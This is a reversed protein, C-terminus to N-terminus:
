FVKLTSALELAIADGTARVGLDGWSGRQSVWRVLAPADSEITAVVAGEGVGIVRAATGTVVIEVTGDFAAVVAANQQPLAAEIWDLTPELRLADSPPLEGTLPGRPAFLDARIHTYHDFAYANALVSAPYTGLDGLPLVFDQLELDAARELATVSVSAYDEVIREASWSRRSEVCLDQARETPVGTTDPLVSPDVVLWFLAGMHAVVDQVSWGACGSESKWEADSLGACIDLLAERDARLADTAGSTM